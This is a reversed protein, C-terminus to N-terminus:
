KPLPKLNFTHKTYYGESKTTMSYWSTTIVIYQAEWGYKQFYAVALSENEKNFNDVKVIGGQSTLGGDKAAADVASSLM